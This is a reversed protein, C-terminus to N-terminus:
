GHPCLKHSVQRRRYRKSALGFGYLQRRRLLNFKLKAAKRGKSAIRPRQTSELCQQSRAELQDMSEELKEKLESLLDDTAHRLEDRSDEIQNSIQQEQEALVDYLLRSNEDAIDSSHSQLRRQVIADIYDEITRCENMESEAFSAKRSAHSLDGGVVPKLLHKHGSRTLLSRITDDPVGRLLSEFSALTNIEARAPASM